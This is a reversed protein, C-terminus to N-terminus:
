KGLPDKFKIYVCLAQLGLNETDTQYFVTERRLCHHCHFELLNLCSTPNQTLLLKLNNASFISSTHSRDEM